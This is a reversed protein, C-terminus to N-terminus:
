ISSYNEFKEDLSLDHVEILFRQRYRTLINITQNGFYFLFIANSIAHSLDFYFSAISILLFSEFNFPHIFLIWFWLNSFWGYFFGYIFGVSSNLWKNPYKNKRLNLLGGIIGMIGWVFMQYISWPGHGLIFNSLLATNAGIIFGLLPGFVYGACFILFSCPQVSPLVAFPIRAVAAFASYIVILSIEKTSLDAEDLRFYIGITFIVIYIIISLILGISSKYPNLIFDPFFKPFLLLFIGYFISIILILNSKKM